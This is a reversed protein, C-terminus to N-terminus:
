MLRIHAAGSSPTPAKAEMTAEDYAKADEAQIRKIMAQLSQANNYQPQVIAPISTLLPKVSPVRGHGMDNRDESDNQYDLSSFVPRHYGGGRYMEEGSPLRSDARDGQPQQTATAADARFQVFTVEYNDSVQNPSWSDVRDSLAPAVAKIMSRQVSDLDNMIAAADTNFEQLKGTDVLLRGDQRIADILQIGEAIMRATELEDGGDNNTESELLSDVRDNATTLEEALSDARASEQEYLEYLQDYADARELTPALAAKASESVEYDQGGITITAMKTQARKPKYNAFGVGASDSRRNKKRKPFPAIDGPDDEDDGDGGPDPRETKVEPDTRRINKQKLEETEDEDDDDGDDDDDPESKPKSPYRDLNIKEPTWIGQNGSSFADMAGSVQSWNFPVETIREDLGDMHWIDIAEEEDLSDIHIGDLVPVIDPGGRAGEVLAVHNAQRDVQAFRGDSDERIKVRYGPSVEWGNSLADIGARTHVSAVIGLFDGYATNERILLNGTSGHSLGLSNDPTVRKSNPHRLTIPKLQHSGASDVRFLTSDPVYEIRRTGGPGVYSLDRNAPALRIYCDVFGEANKRAVGCRPRDSGPGADFSTLGGLRDVRFSESPSM